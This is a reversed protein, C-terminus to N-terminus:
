PRISNGKTLAFISSLDLNKSEHNRPVHDEFPRFVHPTPPPQVMRPTIPIPRPLSLRFVSQSNGSVYDSFKIVDLPAASMTSRKKTASQYLREHVSPVDRSQSLFSRGMRSIDPHNQRAPIDAAAAALLFEKRSQRHEADRTLRDVVNYNEGINRRSAALISKENIRPHFLCESIERDRAEFEVQRRRHEYLAERDTYSIREAIKRSQANIKPFGTQHIKEEREKEELLQAIRRERAKVIKSSRDAISELGRALEMSKKSMRPQPDPPLCKDTSEPKRTLREVLKEEEFLTLKRDMTSSLNLLPPPSSLVLSRMFTKDDLLEKVKEDVVSKELASDAIPSLCTPDYDITM